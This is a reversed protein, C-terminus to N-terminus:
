IIINYIMSRVSRWLARAAVLAGRSSVRGEVCIKPSSHSKPRLLPPANVINRAIMMGVYDPGIHALRVHSRSGLVLKRAPRSMLIGKIKNMM